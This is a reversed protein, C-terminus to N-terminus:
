NGTGLGRYEREMWRLLESEDDSSAYLQYYMGNPIIARVCRRYEESQNAIYAQDQMNYYSSGGLDTTESTQLSLSITQSGSAGTVRANVVVLIASGTTNQYTTNRSRNSLVDSGDQLGHTLQDVEGDTISASQADMSGVYADQRNASTGLQSTVADAGADYLRDLIDATTGYWTSDSARYRFVAGEGANQLNPLGSLSQGSNAAFIVNGGSANTCVIQVADGDSPSAPMTITRAGGSADVFALDFTSLTTDSALDTATFSSGGGGGGGFSVRAM